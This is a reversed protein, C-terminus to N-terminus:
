PAFGAKHNAKYCNTSFQPFTDEDKSLSLILAPAAAAVEHRAHRVAPRMPKLLSDNPNM